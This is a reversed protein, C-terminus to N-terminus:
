NEYYDCGLKAHIDDFWDIIEKPSMDNVSLIVRFSKLGKEYHCEASFRDEVKNGQTSYRSFEWMQLEIFFKKGREDRHSYGWNRDHRDPLSVKYEKFGFKELDEIYKKTNM